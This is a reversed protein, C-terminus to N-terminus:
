GAVCPPSATKPLAVWFTAGKGLSSEVWVRGGHMNVIRNVAALGVGDGPKKSELRHFLRFISKHYEAAIGCGGFGNSFALGPGFDPRAM